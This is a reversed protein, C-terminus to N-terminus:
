TFLGGRVAWKDICLNGCRSSFYDMGEIVDWTSKIGIINNNNNNNIGVIPGRELIM